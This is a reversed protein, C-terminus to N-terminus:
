SLASSGRFGVQHPQGDDAGVNTVEFAGSRGDELEIRYTGGTDVHKGPPLEFSGSWDSAGDGSSALWIELDEAVTEQGKTVKGKLCEM